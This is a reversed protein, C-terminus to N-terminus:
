FFPANKESSEREELARAPGMRAWIPEYKGEHAWISGFFGLFYMFLKGEYTGKLHKAGQRLSCDAIRHFVRLVNDGWALMEDSLVNDDSALFM